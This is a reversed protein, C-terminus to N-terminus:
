GGLRHDRGRDASDDDAVFDRASEANAREERLSLVAPKEQPAAKRERGALADDDDLVDERGAARRAFDARRHGGRPARHGGHRRDHVAANGGPGKRDGRGREEDEVDRGPRLLLAGEAGPAVREISGAAPRVRIGRSLDLKRAPLAPSM